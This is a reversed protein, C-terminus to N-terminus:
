PAPPVIPLRMRFTSGSGPESSVSIDGGHATAIRQAISLGLGVGGRARSRDKGVRYFREFLHPLDGASVGVGSDKVEIAADRPGVDMTVRVTGGSPTYK